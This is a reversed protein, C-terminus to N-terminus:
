AIRVAAEPRNSGDISKFLEAQGELIANVFEGADHENEFPGFVEANGCQLVPAPHACVSLGKDTAALHFTSYLTM